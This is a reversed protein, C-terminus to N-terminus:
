KWSRALAMLTLTTKLIRKLPQVVDLFTLEDADGSALFVTGLVTSIGLPCSQELQVFASGLYLILSACARNSDLLTIRLFSLVLIM